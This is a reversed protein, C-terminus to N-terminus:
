ADKLFAPIRFVKVAGDVIATTEIYGADALATAQTTAAASTFKSWVGNTVPVADLNVNSPGTGAIRPYIASADQVSM